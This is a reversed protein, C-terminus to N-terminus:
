RDASNTKNSQRKKKNEKADNALLTELSKKASNLIAIISAFYWMFTKEVAELEVDSIILDNTSKPHTLRDRIKLAENFSSWEKSNKEIKFTTNSVHAFTKLTFCLNDKTRLKSKTSIAEGKENLAYIEEKLMAIEAHSLKIKKINALLISVNNIRHNIGEIGAFLSRIFTRRWFQKQNKKVMKLSLSIDAGAVKVIDLLDYIIIKSERLSIM